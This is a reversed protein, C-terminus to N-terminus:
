ERWLYTHCLLGDRLETPTLEKPEKLMPLYPVRTTTPLYHKLTKQVKKAGEIGATDPDLWILITKFDLESIQNLLSTTIATRLLAVSSWGTDKNVRYASLYDETIVLAKSKADNYFWAASGKDEEDFFHTIYKAKANADLNRIQYGILNKEVDFLDLAVKNPEHRVGNFCHETTDCHYKNLWVRGEFSLEVLTPAVAKKTPKYPKFFGKSSISHEGSLSAFGKENCHHCYALFGRVTKKIYLRKKKDEGSPCGEHNVHIQEDMNSPANKLIIKKDIM